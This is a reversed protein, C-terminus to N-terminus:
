PISANLLISIRPKSQSLNVDISDGTVDGPQAMANGTKSVRATIVVNEASSLRMAPTMADDNTLTVTVPLDKVRATKVALPMPPGNKAKAFIFVKDTPSVKSQMAADLAVDVTVTPSSSIPPLMAAKKSASYHQKKNVGKHGFVSDISVSVFNDGNKMILVDSTGEFDGTQGIADGSKSIRATIKIKNVTNITMKPMMAMSEDLMVTSGIAKASLKKVALPMPSSGDAMKAFVFLTDEPEFKGAFRDAVDLKIFIKRPAGDNSALQVDSALSAQSPVSMQLDNSITTSQIRQNNEAIKADLNEHVPAETPVTSKLTKWYTNAQVFDGTNESYMAMLMLANANKPEKQLAANLVHKSRLTNGDVATMLQALQVHQRASNLKLSEVKEVVRKAGEQFKVATYAQGLLLWEDPSQPSQAVRTRQALLYDQVKYPNNQQPEVLLKQLSEASLDDNKMIAQWHDVQQYFGIKAYSIVSVALLISASFALILSNQGHKKPKIESSKNEQPIDDLLSQQLQTKLVAFEDDSIGQNIREKELEELRDNFVAQNYDRRSVQSVQKNVLLPKIVVYVSLFFIIISAIWFVIM